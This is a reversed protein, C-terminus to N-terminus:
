KNIKLGFSYSTVPLFSLDPSYGFVGQVQCAVYPSLRINQFKVSRYGMSLQLPVQILGKFKKGKQWDNGDWTLSSRPYGALRYGVGTGIGLEIHKAIVPTFRAILQASTADGLSKSKALGVQIGMSFVQRGSGPQHYVGFQTILGTHDYKLNKIPAYISHTGAALDFQWSSAPSQGRLWSTAITGLALLISLIIKKMDISKFKGAFQSTSPRLLLPKLTFHLFPPTFRLFRITIRM